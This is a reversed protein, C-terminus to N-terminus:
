DVWGAAALRHRLGERTATGGHGTKDRIRAIHVKLTRESIGLRRAVEARTDEAGDVLYAVAVDRERPTLEATPSPAKPWSVSEGLLVARVVAALDGPWALESVYASAGADRLALVRPATLTGGWVVTGRGDRGREELLSRVDPDIVDAVLLGSADRPSDTLVAREGSEGLAVVLAEAHFPWPSWVAVPSGRTM